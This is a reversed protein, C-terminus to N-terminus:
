SFHRRLIADFTARCIPCAQGRDREGIACVLCYCLVHGPGRHRVLAADRPAAGCVVCCAEVGPLAAREAEEEESFTMTLPEAFVSTQAMREAVGEVEAAAAHAEAAAATAAAAAEVAMAAATDAETAAESDVESVTSEAASSASADAEALQARLLARQRKERQRQRKLQQRAAKAAAREADARRTAEAEQFEAAAQAAAAMAAVAQVHDRIASMCEKHGNLEAYQLATRNTSNRVYLCAGARLLARVASVRNTSAALMLATTGEALYSSKEHLEADLDCQADLLLEVVATHGNVCGLMLATYGDADRANVAASRQLLLEVIGHQGDSCARALLSQGHLPADIHPQGGDELWREVTESDGAAAAESVSTPVCPM